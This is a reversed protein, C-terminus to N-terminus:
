AIKKKRDWEDLLEFFQRMLALEDQSLEIRPPRAERDPSDTRTKSRRENTTPDPLPSPAGASMTVETM